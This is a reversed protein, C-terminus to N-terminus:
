PMLRAMSLASGGHLSMILLAQNFLRESVQAYGCAATAALAGVPAFRRAAFSFVTWFGGAAEASARVSRMVAAEFGAPVALAPRTRAHLVLAQEIRDLRASKALRRDDM